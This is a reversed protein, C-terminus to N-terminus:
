IEGEEGVLLRWATHAIKCEVGGNHYEWGDEQVTDDLIHPDIGLAYAVMLIRNDLPEGWHMVQM